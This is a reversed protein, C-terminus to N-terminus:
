SLKKIVMKSWKEQDGAADKVTPIDELKVVGVIDKPFVPEQSKLAKGMGMQLTIDTSPDQFWQDSKKIKIIVVPKKHEFSMKFAWRYADVPHEFAFIGGDENYRNGSANVWNSTQLLLIGKSKIKNANSAFTAHYYYKGSAEILFSKFSKM